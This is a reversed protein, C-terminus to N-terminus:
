KAAQPQQLRVDNRREWKRIRRWVNRYDTGDARAIDVMSEGNTYRLVWSLDRERERSAAKSARYAILDVGAALLARRAACYAMGEAAALERVTQGTLKARLEEGLHQEYEARLPRWGGRRSMVNRTSDEPRGIRRSLDLLHLGETRVLDEARRIEAGTWPRNTVAEHSKDFGSM